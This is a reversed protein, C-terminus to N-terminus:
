VGTELLISGASSQLGRVIGLYQDQSIRLRWYVFDPNPNEHMSLLIIESPHIALIFAGDIAPTDHWFIMDRPSTTAADMECPAKVVNKARVDLRIASTCRPVSLGDSTSAHSAENAAVTAALLLRIIARRMKANIRCLVSHTRSIPGFVSADLNKM